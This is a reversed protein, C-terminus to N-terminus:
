RLGWQELQKNVEDPMLYYVIGIGAALTALVGLLFGLWGFGFRHGPVPNAPKHDDDARVKGLNQSTGDTYTIM